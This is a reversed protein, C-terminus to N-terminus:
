AAPLMRLLGEKANIEIHAYELEKTLLDHEPYNSM